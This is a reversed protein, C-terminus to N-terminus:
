RDKRKQLRHFRRLIPKEMLRKARFFLTKKDKIPPVLIARIGIMRAGWVDTFIQDGFAATSALEAGVERAIAGLRKGSPKHCDAYASLGLTANFREVRDANNNSVLVVRIGNQRMQEIWAFVRENPVAEEYPALTNDIDCLLCNIKQEKLFEPTVLDFRDFYHDPMFRDLM